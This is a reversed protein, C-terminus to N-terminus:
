EVESEAEEMEADAIADAEQIDDIMAHFNKSLIAVIAGICTDIAALTATIQEAHPINWISCIAGILVAIPAFILAILKIKDYTQNNM